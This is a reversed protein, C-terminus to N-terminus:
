RVNVSDKLEYKSSFVAKQELSKTTIVDLYDDLSIGVGQRVSALDAKFEDPTMNEFLEDIANLSQNFIDM